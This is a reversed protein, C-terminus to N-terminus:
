WATPADAFPQDNMPDRKLVPQATALSALCLSARRPFYGAPRIIEALHHQPMARLASFSWVDARRMALLATTVNGWATNQTLIAGVIVEFPGEGPWWHQPGYCELLRDYLARIRAPTPDISATLPAQVHCIM